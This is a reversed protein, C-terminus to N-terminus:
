ICYCNSVTQDPTSATFSTVSKSSVHHKKGFLADDKFRKHDTTPTESAQTQHNLFELLEQYHPVEIKAQSHKQWEFMTNVDLKLELM